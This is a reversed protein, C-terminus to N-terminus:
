RLVGVVCAANNGGFGSALALVPGGPEIARPRDLVVDVQNLVASGDTATAPLRGSRCAEIAVAVNFLGAVGMTHGLAGKVSTIPVGSPGWRQAIVAAEIADNKPTGTGHCIIAKIDSPRLGARRLADDMAKGLWRGDPEPDTPHGADCSLGIGLLCVAASGAERTSFRIAVSGEGILLGDRTVHFPRCGFQSIAGVKRFGIVEIVSLADAALVIFDGPWAISDQVAAALALLGSCCAACTWQVSGGCASAVPDFLVSRWQEATGRGSEALLLTLLLDTEGHNSGGYVRVPEGPKRVQQLAMTALRVAAGEGDQSVGRNLGSVAAVFVDVGFRRDIDRYSTGHHVGGALLATWITPWNPGLASVAGISSVAPCPLARANV